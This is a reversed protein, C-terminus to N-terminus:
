MVLCGPRKADAIAIEPSSSVGRDDSTTVTALGDRSENAVETQASGTTANNTFCAASRYLQKKRINRLKYRKHKYKHHNIQRPQRAELENETVDRRTSPTADTVQQQAPPTIPDVPQQQAPSTVPDDVRHKELRENVFVHSELSQDDISILLFGATPNIRVRGSILWLPELSLEACRDLLIRLWLVTKRSAAAYCLASEVRVGQARLEYVFANIQTVACVRLGASVKHRDTANYRVFAYSDDLKVVGILSDLAVVDEFLASYRDNEVADDRQQCEVASPPTHRLVPPAFSLM